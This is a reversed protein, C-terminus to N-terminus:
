FMVIRAVEDKKGENSLIVEDNHNSWRRKSINFNMEDEERM